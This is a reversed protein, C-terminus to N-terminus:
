WWQPKTRTTKDGPKKGPPVVKPRSTPCAGLKELLRLYLANARHDLYRAFQGDIVRGDDDMIPVRIAICEKFHAYYVCTTELLHRDAETLWGISGKLSFWEQVLNNDIIMPAPPGLPHNTLNDDDVYRNPHAKLAGSANAVALSLKPRGAVM